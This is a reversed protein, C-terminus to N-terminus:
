IIRYIRYTNYEAITATSHHSHPLLRTMSCAKIRRFGTDERCPYRFCVSAVNTFIQFSKQLRISFSMKARLMNERLSSHPQRPSHSWWSNPRPSSWLATTRRHRYSHRSAWSHAKGWDPHSKWLSLHRSTRNKVNGQYHKRHYSGLPPNFVDELANM